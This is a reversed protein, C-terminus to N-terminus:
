TSSRGCRGSSPAALPLRRPRPAPRRRRRDAGRGPDLRADADREGVPRLRRSLPLLPRRPRRAAPRRCPPRRARRDRDGRGVVAAAPAAGRELGRGAPLRDVAGVAGGHLAGRGRRRHRPDARHLHLPRLHRRRGALEHRGFDVEGGAGGAGQSLGRGLPSSTARSWLIADRRHGRGLRPPHRDDAAPSPAPAAVSVAAM